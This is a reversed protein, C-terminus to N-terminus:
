EFFNDNKIENKIIEIAKTELRSIYSRSINLKEAVERQTLSKNGGIGYRLKIIEAERKSLKKNILSIIKQTIINNEVITDNFTRAKEWEDSFDEATMEEVVTEYSSILQNQRYTNWQNSVTPYVLVGFGVLFLLGFLLKKITKKKM